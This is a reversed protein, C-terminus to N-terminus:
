APLLDSVVRELEDTAVPKTVYASVGGVRDDTLSERNLEGTLLVFPVASEEVEDLLDLGNRNRMVYDCVILDFGSGPLDSARQGVSEHIIALASDVGDAETVEFDQRELM